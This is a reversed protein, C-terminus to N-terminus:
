PMEPWHRNGKARNQASTLMQLNAPTHLGCVKDHKLPVIHDVHFGVSPYLENFYAVAKYCEVLADQSAWGPVAAKQQARRAVVAQHYYSKKKRYHKATSAKLKEPNAKKWEAARAVHKQKNREYYGKLYEAMCPKCYNSRGSARAKNKSFMAEDKNVGCKTCVPM